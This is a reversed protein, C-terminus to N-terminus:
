IGSLNSPKVISILYELYKNISIDVLEKDSVHLRYYLGNFTFNQKLLYTKCKNSVTIINLRNIFFSMLIKWVIKIDDKSNNECKAMTTLCMMAFHFVDYCSLFPKKTYVLDEFYKVKIKDDDTFPHLYEEKNIPSQVISNGYDIIVPIYTVNKLKLGIYKYIITEPQKSKTVLINEDHLDYHIFKCFAQADALALIVQLFLNIFLKIKDYSTSKNCYSEIGDSFSKGKILEFFACTTLKDKQQTACIKKGVSCYFPTYVYMFNLNGTYRLHNLFFGTSTEHLITEIDKHIGKGYKLIAQIKKNKYKFTVISVIGQKNNAKLPINDIIISTFDKIPNSIINTSNNYKQLENELYCQIKYVDEYQSGNCFLELDNLYSHIEHLQVQINKKNLKNSILNKISSM